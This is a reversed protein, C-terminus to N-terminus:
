MNQPKPVCSSLIHNLFYHILAWFCKLTVKHTKSQLFFYSEGSVLFLLLLLLCCFVLFNDCGELLSLFQIWSPISYPGLLINLVQKM